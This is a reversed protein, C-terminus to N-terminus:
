KKVCTYCAMCGQWCEMPALPCLCAACISSASPLLINRQHFNANPLNIMCYSLCLMVFWVLLVFLLHECLSLFLCLMVFHALVSLHEVREFPRKPPMIRAHIPLPHHTAVKNLGRSLDETTAASPTAQV